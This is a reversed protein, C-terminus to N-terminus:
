ISEVFVLVTHRHAKQPVILWVEAHSAKLPQADCFLRVEPTHGNADPVVAGPEAKTAAEGSLNVEVDTFAEMRSSAESAIVTNAQLLRCCEHGHISCYM